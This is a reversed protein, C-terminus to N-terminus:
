SMVEIASNSGAASAPRTVATLSRRALWCSQLDEGHDITVEGDAKRHDVAALHLGLQTIHAVATRTGQLPDLLRRTWRRPREVRQVTDGASQPAPKFLHRSSGASEAGAERADARGTQRRRGRDTHDRESQLAAQLLRRFRILRVPPQLRHQPRGSM